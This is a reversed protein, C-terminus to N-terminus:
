VCSLRVSSKGPLQCTTSALANKYLGGVLCCKSANATSELRLLRMVALLSENSTVRNVGAYVIMTLGKRM